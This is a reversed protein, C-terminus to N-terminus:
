AATLIVGGDEERVLVRLSRFRSLDRSDALRLLGFAGPFLVIAGKRAKVVTVLERLQVAFNHNVQRTVSNFRAPLIISARGTGLFVAEPLNTAIFVGSPLDRIAQITPSPPKRPPVGHDIRDALSSLAPMAVLVCLGVCCATAVQRGHSNFRTAMLQWLAGVILIYYLAQIPALIRDDIPTSGDLFDRTVVVVVLYMGAFIVLARLMQLSSEGSGGTGRPPRTLAAAILLGAAVLGTHRAAPAWGAPTLWGEVVNLIGGVSEIHTHWSRPTSGHQFISNYLTWVVTPILALALVVGSRRLRAPRGGQGWLVVVIVTAIVISVGVYRTLLSLGAFTGVGVLNRLRYGDVYRAVMLLALLLWTIFLPESVATSHLYLWSTRTGLVDGFVPGALLLLSVAASVTKSRVVEAAVLGVLVLNVGFLIANLTRAAGTLSMGSSALSALAFPYLPPFHTLPIAGEFGAARLPGYQSTFFTFPTTVGRGHAINHAAGLYPGSDTGIGVGYRTTVLCLAAGALGIVCLAGWEGVRKELHRPIGRRGRNAEAESVTGTV